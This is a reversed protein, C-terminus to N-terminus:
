EQDEGSAEKSGYPKLLKALDKQRVRGFTRDNIRVVPAMGCCGLCRVKEMSFARDETLNESGMKLDRALRASLQGAGLVHCATGDCVQLHRAGKPALRFFSYFTAVSFLRSLPVGLELALTSLGEEPLYGFIDQIEQLAATVMGPSGKWRRAIEATKATLETNM